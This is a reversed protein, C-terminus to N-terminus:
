KKEGKAADEISAGAKQVQQGGPGGAKDVDKGAKAPPGEPKQCAAPGALVACLAVLAAVSRIPKMM